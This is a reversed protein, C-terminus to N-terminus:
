EVEAVQAVTRLLNIYDGSTAKRMVRDIEEESAGAARLASELRGLISFADRHGDLIGIRVNAYQKADM